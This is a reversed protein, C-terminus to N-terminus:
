CLAFPFLVSNHFHGVYMKEKSFGVVAVGGGGRELLFSLFIQLRGFVM